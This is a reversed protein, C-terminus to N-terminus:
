KKIERLKYSYSRLNNTITIEQEDKTIEEIVFTGDQIVRYETGAINRCIFTLGAKAYNETLASVDYYVNQFYNLAEFYAATAKAPKQNLHLEYPIEQNM